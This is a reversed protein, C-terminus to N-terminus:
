DDISGAIARQLMAPDINGGSLIVAVTRGAVAARGSLVAAFAAAGGPEVVVKLMEAAIRVANLAERDSAVVGKAGVARLIPLTLKGPSKVLLADCISGSARANVVGEEGALARAMDDFGDPEATMVQVGPMRGALALACGAALGGGSCPVVAADVAADLEAAQEALELGITGQGAIVQHDDYPKILTLGRERAIRSCITERDETARDYLVIEAGNARTREIKIIPADAPMVITAHTGLLRAATAVAIAHNGSSFAIVGNELGADPLATLASLAGRIKFSGGWQLPELKLLLRGGFRENLEESEVLPTTRIMASIRERAAEVTAFKPILDGMM